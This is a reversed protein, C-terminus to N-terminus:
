YIPMYFSNRFNVQYSNFNLGMITSQTMLSPQYLHSTFNQFLILCSPGEEPFLRLIIKLLGQGQTCMQSMKVSQCKSFKINQSKTCKVCDKEDEVTSWAPTIRLTKLRLLAELIM